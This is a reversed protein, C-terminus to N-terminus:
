GLRPLWSKKRGKKKKTVQIVSAFNKEELKLNSEIYKCKCNYYSVKETLCVIM